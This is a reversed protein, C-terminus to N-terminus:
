ALSETAVATKATEVEVADEVQQVRSKKRWASWTVALLLLASIAVFTGSIPRQVFIMM